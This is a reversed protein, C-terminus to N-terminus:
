GKRIKWLQSYEEFDSTFNIEDITDFDILSDKIKKIKDSLETNTNASCEILLSCVENDLTKLIEPMGAKNEVSRLSARDMLEVADVSTKKLIPVAKCASSFNRFLVLSSAKLPAEDITKYTIESIFGLTGESGIMLHQIIEIEDEFDILSNLSYGTTNKLKYKKEILATLANNKKTKSSLEKIRQILKPHSKEFNDISETNGTNLESGDAFVLKMSKLTKYSNQSTGCCMGSANNAAIGGIMASNISAPDPGIKKNFQKLYANAFGGTIAPALDIFNNDNSIKHYNWNRDLVMLVSDSIAQGSLSTGAARITLPITFKNCNDIVFKAENENKVKVVIQPILRYFSADTGYALLNLKDTFIQNPSFFTNLNELLLNYNNNGM